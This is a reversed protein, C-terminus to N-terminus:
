LLYSLRTQFPFFVSFFGRLGSIERLFYGKGWGMGLCHKDGAVETDHNVLATSFKIPFVADEHHSLFRLEETLM